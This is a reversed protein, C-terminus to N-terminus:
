RTIMGQKKKFNQMIKKYKEIKCKGKAERREDAIKNNRRNVMKYSEDEKSKTDM